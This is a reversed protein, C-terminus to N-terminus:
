TALETCDLRLSRVWIMGNNTESHCWFSDERFDFSRIAPNSPVLRQHRGSSIIAITLHGTVVQGGTEQAALGRM